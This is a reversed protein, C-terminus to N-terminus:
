KVPKFRDSLVSPPISGASHDVHVPMSYKLICHTFTHNRMPVVPVRGLSHDVHSFM